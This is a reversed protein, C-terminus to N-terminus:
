QIGIHIHFTEALSHGQIRYFAQMREVNLVAVRLDRNNALAQGIVSRLREDTFFEQWAVDAAAPATPAGSAAAADAAWTEPVPLTPRDYPPITTCAVTVLAAAFLPVTHRKM